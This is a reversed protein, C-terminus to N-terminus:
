IIFLNTRFSRKLLRDVLILMVVSLVVIVTISSIEVGSFLSKVYNLSELILSPFNITEIKIGTFINKIFSWDYGFLLSVVLVFGAAILIWYKLSLISKSEVSEVITEQDIKKMINDTFDVSPKEIDIKRIIKRLLLDKM